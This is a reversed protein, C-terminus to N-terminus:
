YGGDPNAYFASESPNAFLAKELPPLLATLARAVLADRSQAWGPKGDPDSVIRDVRGLLDDALDITVNAM